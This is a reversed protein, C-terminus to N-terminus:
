RSGKPWECNGRFLPCDTFFNRNLAAARRNPPLWRKLLAGEQEGDRASMRVVGRRSAPTSGTTLLAGEQEGDRVSM